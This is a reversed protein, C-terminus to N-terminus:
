CFHAAKPACEGRCLALLIFLLYASINRIWEADAYNDHYGIELLVAPARSRSVEVLTTTARTTVLEPLPYINKLNQAFIEAARRGQPSGPYYFAIIGRTPRPEGNGTANSHLALYLDYRGNNAQRVSSLATMDPTNRGYAIANSDLYPVMADALLNMFYEESGAGTVYPNAEQTSPSLYITPM